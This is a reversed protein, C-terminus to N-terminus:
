NPMYVSKIGEWTAGWAESKSIRYSNDWSPAEIVATELSTNGFSPVPPLIGSLDDLEEQSRVRQSGPTVIVSTHRRALSRLEPRTDIEGDLESAM